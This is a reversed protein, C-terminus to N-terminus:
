VLRERERKLFINYKQQPKMMLHMKGLKMQIVIVFRVIMCMRAKM